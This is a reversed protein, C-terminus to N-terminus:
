HIYNTILFFSQSPLLPLKTRCLFVCVCVCTCQLTEGVSTNKPGHSRDIVNNFIM